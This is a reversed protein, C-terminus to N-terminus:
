ELVTQFDGIMLVVLYILLDCAMLPWRLLRQLMLLIVSVGLVVYQWGGILMDMLRLM